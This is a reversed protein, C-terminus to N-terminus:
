TKGWANEIQLHLLNPVGILPLMTAHCGTSVTCLNENLFSIGVFSFIWAFFKILIWVFQVFGHCKDKVWPCYFPTLNRSSSSSITIFITIIGHRHWLTFALGFGPLTSWEDSWLVIVPSDLAWFYFNKPIAQGGGEVWEALYVLLVTLNDSRIVTEM